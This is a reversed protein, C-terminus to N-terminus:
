FDQNSADSVGVCNERCLCPDDFELYVSELLIGELDINPAVFTVVDLDDSSLEIEEAKGLKSAEALRLSVHLAYHKNFPEGCRDCIHEIEADIDAELSIFAGKNVLTASFALPQLAHAEGDMQLYKDVDAVPIESRVSFPKGPVLKSSQIM